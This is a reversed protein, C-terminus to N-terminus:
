LGSLMAKIMRTSKSAAEWFFLGLPLATANEYGKEFAVAQKRALPKKSSDTITVDNEVKLMTQETEDNAYSSVQSNITITLDASGDSPAPVLFCSDKLFKRIFADDAFDKPININSAAYAKYALSYTPPVVNFVLSQEPLTVGLDKAEFSPSGPIVTSVNPKVYLMSGKSIFPIKFEPFAIKGDAGTKGSCILRGGPLTCMLDVGPLPTTDILAQVQLPNAPASGPKGSIVVDQSSVSFKNFLAQMTKRAEELLFSRPTSEDPIGIPTGMRGMTYFITQIGLNYQDAIAKDELAKKMLTYYRLSITYCRTNNSELLAKADEGSLTFTYSVDHGQISSESKAKRLCSDAYGRFHFKQITNQTDVAVDAEEKMWEWLDIKFATMASARVQENLERSLPKKLKLSATGSVPRAAAGFAFCFLLASAIAQYIFHRQTM